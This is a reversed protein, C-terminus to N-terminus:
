GERITDVADTVALNLLLQDAPNMGPNEQVYQALKNYAATVYESLRDQEPVSGHREQHILSLFQEVDARQLPLVKETFTFGAIALPLSYNYDILILRYDRARQVRQAIQSILEQVEEPLGQQKVGDLVIWWLARNPGTSDTILWKALEQNWRTAQQEGRSPISTVDLQLDKAITRALKPADYKDKDLDVYSCGSPPQNVSLFSVFEQTYTKGIKSSNGTVVLVNKSYGAGSMRRLFTRLTPRGIFSKGGFIRLADCPHTLLRSKAPDWDPHTKLFDNVAANSSREDVVALVFRGIWGQSNAAGVLEELQEPFTLIATTYDTFKRNLRLLLTSIESVTFAGNLAAAFQVIEPGTM